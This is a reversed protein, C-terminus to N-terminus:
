PLSQGSRGRSANAAAPAPEMCTNTQGLRSRTTVCVGPGHSSASLVSLCASSNIRTTPAILPYFGTLIHQEPAYFIPRDNKGTCLDQKQRLGGQITVPRRPFDDDDVASGIADRVAQIRIAVGCVRKGDCLSGENERYAYEYSQSRRPCM